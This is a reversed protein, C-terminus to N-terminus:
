NLPMMPKQRTFPHGAADQTFSQKVESYNQAAHRASISVSKTQIQTSVQLHANLQLMEFFKM